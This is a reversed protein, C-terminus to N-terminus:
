DEKIYDEDGYENDEYSELLSEGEKIAELENAEGGQVTAVFGNAM